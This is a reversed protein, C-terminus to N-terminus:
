KSKPVASLVALEGKGLNGPATMRENTYFLPNHMEKGKVDSRGLPDVIKKKVSDRKKGEKPRTTIKSEIGVYSHNKRHFSGSPINGVKVRGRTSPPKNSVHVKSMSTMITRYSMIGNKRGIVDDNKSYITLNSKKGKQFSQLSDQKKRSGRKSKVNSEVSLRSNKSSESDPQTRVKQEITRYLNSKKPGKKIPMRNFKKWDKNAVQNSQFNKMGKRKVEYLDVQENRGLLTSTIMKNKEYTLGGLKNGSHTTRMQRNKYVNKRSHGKNPAIEYNGLTRNMKTKIQKRSDAGLITIQKKTKVSNKKSAKGSKLNRMSNRHNRKKQKAKVTNKSDKTNISENQNIKTRSYPKKYNSTQKRSKQM